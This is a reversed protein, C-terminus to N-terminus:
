AIDMEAPACVKAFELKSVGASAAPVYTPVGAPALQVNEPDAPIDFPEFAKV